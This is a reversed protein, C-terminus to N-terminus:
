AASRAANSEGLSTNLMEKARVGAMSETGTRSPAEAKAAARTLEHPVARPVRAGNCRRRCQRCFICDSFVVKCQCSPPPSACKLTDDTM